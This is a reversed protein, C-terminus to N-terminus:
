RGWSGEEWIELVLARSSSLTKDLQESMRLPLALDVLVLTGSEQLWTQSLRIQNVLIPRLIDVLGEKAPDM